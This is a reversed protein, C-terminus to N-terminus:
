KEILTNFEKIFKYALSRIYSASNRLANAICPDFEVNNNEAEVKLYQIPSNIKNLVDVAKMLNEECFYAYCNSCICEGKIGIRAFEIPSEHGCECMIVEYLKTAESM